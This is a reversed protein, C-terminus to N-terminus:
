AGALDACSFSVMWGATRPAWHKVVEFAKERDFPEYGIESKENSRSDRKGSKAVYLAKAGGSDQAAHTRKGYPADFICADCEVDALVDQWRGLRIDASVLVWRGGWRVM